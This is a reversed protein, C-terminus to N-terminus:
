PQSDIKKNHEHVKELAQERTNEFTIAQWSSKGRLPYMGEAISEVSQYGSEHQLIWHIINKDNM